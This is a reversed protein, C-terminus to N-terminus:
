RNTTSLCERKQTELILEWSRFKGPILREDAVGGFREPRVDFFVVMAVRGAHRDVGLIGGDNLRGPHSLRPRHVLHPFPVKYDRYIDPLWLGLTHGNGMRFRIGFNM